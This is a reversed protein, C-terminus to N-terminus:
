EKPVSLADYSNVIIVFLNDEKFFVQQLDYNKNAVLDLTVRVLAPDDLQESRVQRIYEGNTVQEEVVNEALRTGAFDCIVKPTGEEEGSVVPPYFGNLKFLVMEGKNSTNEFSVSSLLPDPSPDTEVAPSPEAVTEVVEGVDAETVVPATAVVEETVVTEVVEGASTETGAPTTEVVEEAVIEEAAVTEAVVEERTVEEAVVESGSVSESVEEQQAGAAVANNEQKEPLSPSVLEITLINQTEDFKQEFNFDEGSVLDIVARTKNDYRGLRIRQIMNGGADISAPVSRALHTEMFDFVVRPKEGKMAFVKPLYPGNLLFTVSESGENEGHFSVEEILGDAAQLSGSFLFFCCLGTLSFIKKLSQM